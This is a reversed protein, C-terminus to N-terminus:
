KGKRLNAYVKSYTKMAKSFTFNEDAGHQEQYFELLGKDWASKPRACKGGKGKM